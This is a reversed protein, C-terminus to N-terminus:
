FQGRRMPSTSREKSLSAFALQPGSFAVNVKVAGKTEQEFAEGALKTIPYM